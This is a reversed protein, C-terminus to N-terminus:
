FLEAETVEESGTRKESLSNEKPNSNTNYNYNTNSNAYSAHKPISLCAELM